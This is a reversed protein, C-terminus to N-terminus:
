WIMHVADGPHEMTEGFLLTYLETPSNFGGATHNSICSSLPNTCPRKSYAPPSAAPLRCSVGKAQRAQDNETWCFRRTELEADASM